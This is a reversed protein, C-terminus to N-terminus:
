RGGGYPGKILAMKATTDGMGFGIEIVLPKDNGFVACKDIKEGTYFLGYKEFYNKVVERDKEDMTNNRLVYSKIEREKGERVEIKGLKEFLEKEDM